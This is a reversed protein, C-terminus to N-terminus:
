RFFKAVDICKDIIESFFKLKCLDKAALDIGHAKCGEFFIWPYKKNLLKWGAKMNPANDTVLAVIKQPGLYL